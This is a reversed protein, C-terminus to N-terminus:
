TLLLDDSKIVYKVNCKVVTNKGPCCGVGNCVEYQVEISKDRCDGTCQKTRFKTGNGCTVSCASWNGWGDAFSM